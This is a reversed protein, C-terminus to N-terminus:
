PAAEGRIRAVYIRRVLRGTPCRACAQLEYGAAALEDELPDRTAICLRPALRVTNELIERNLDPDPVTTHGYPPDTVVADFRGAVNRADAAGIVGTYGYHRLNELAPTTMKKNLDFGVCRIGMSAAELLITAAGCCPDCVVDGPQTVFNVMARAVRAPLSCSYSNPKSEHRVWGRESRSFVQAFAFLRQRALIVYEQEPHSLNPKGKISDAVAITLAQSDIQPRPALREVEIRFARAEWDLARTREVLEEPTDGQALVRAGLTVFAARRIDHERDAWLLRGDARGAPVLTRGELVALEREHEMHALRYVCDM